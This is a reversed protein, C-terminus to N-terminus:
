DARAQPFNMVNATRVDDNAVAREPWMADRAENLAAERKQRNLYLILAESNDDARKGAALFAFFVVLLALSVVFAGVAVWIM